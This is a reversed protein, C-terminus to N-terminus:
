RNKGLIYMVYGNISLLLLIFLILRWHQVIFSKRNKDFVSKLLQRFDKEQEASEFARRPIIQFSQKNDSHILLFYNKTELFDQFVDWKIKVEKTGSYVSIGDKTASWSNGTHWNKDQEIKNAGSLPAIFYSYILGFSAMAVFLFISLEFGNRILGLVGAVILLVLLVGFVQNNFQSLYYSRAVKVFDDKSLVVKFKIPNDM